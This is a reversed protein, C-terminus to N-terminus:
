EPSNTKMAAPRGLCREGWAKVNAFSSYDYGMFRLWGLYSSVALDALSFRDDVLYTKGALAADLIRMAAGIDNKGAEAARANQQEAPM